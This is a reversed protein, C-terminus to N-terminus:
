KEYMTLARGVENCIWFPPQPILTYQVSFACIDSSFYEETKISSTYVQALKWASRICSGKYSKQVSDHIETRNSDDQGM